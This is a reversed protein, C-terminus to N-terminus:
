WRQVLSVVAAQAASHVVLSDQGRLHLARSSVRVEEGTRATGKRGEEGEGAM